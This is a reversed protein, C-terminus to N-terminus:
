KAAEMVSATLAEQLDLDERIGDILEQKSGWKHDQFSFYRGKQTIAGFTIGWIVIDRIHDFEGTKFGSEPAHDFFYLTEAVRQPAAQKNKLTRFRITQGCRVKGKGPLPEDHWDARACEVRAYFAYNKAHGGPATKPTPRGPMQPGGIKDRWQNIFLGTVPRNNAKEGRGTKRFFKGTLRAGLMMVSEDMLKAAEEDPILAPYSDLVILDFAGSDQADLIAQFAEETRTTSLVAVGEPNIGIKEAYPRDYKEAAVWLTAFDPNAAQGTAVTKHCVATKGSSEQGIIETWQNRPWGGGLIVDLGLIGSPLQGASELDAAVMASGPGYTKNLKAMLAQADSNLM